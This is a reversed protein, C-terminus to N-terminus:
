GGSEQKKLLQLLLRPCLWLILVFICICVSVFHDSYFCCVCCVLCYQLFKQFTKCKIYWGNHFWDSFWHLRYELFKYLQKTPGGHKNSSHKIICFINLLKHQIWLYINDMWGSASDWQPTYSIGVRFIDVLSHLISTVIFINEYLSFHIHMYLVPYVMNM